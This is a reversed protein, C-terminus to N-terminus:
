SVLYELAEERSEFIKIKGYGNTANYSNILIAKQDDIGYIAAKRAKTRFVTESLKKMENAYDVGIFAGTMNSLSRIQDNSNRYIEAAAQLVSIMDQQNRTDSYDIYLIKEGQHYIFDVPM